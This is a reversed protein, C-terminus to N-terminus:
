FTIDGALFITGNGQNGGIIIEQFGNELRNLDGPTLNLTLESNNDQGAIEIDQAATAPQLVIQGQGQISNEDGTFNIEDSTIEIHGTATEVQDFTGTRLGKTEVELEANLIINGGTKGGRTDILNTSLTRPTNILINGGSGESSTGDISYSNGELIIDGQSSSLTIDGAKATGSTNISNTQIRNLANLNLNGGTGNTSGRTSLTNTIIDRDSELTINGGRTSASTSLNETQIAGNNTTTLDLNGGKTIIDGTILNVGTIVISGGSTQLTNGSNMTFNGSGSQDADATFTLTGTTTPFNLQNDTLNGINISNKAQIVVNATPAFNELTQDSLTINASNQEPNGINIEPANILLTGPTSNTTKLNINGAINLDNQSTITAFGGLRQTTNSNSFGQASIDGFFQTSDNAGIIIQGGNGETLADAIITSQDNILTRSATPFLGNEQADSGIRVTGGGNAGSADIKGNFLHIDNGIINVQPPNPASSNFNTNRTNLFGSVLAWVGQTPFQTNIATLEVTGDPLINVISAQNNESSGTLLKPLDLPNIVSKDNGYNPTITEIELNLLYGTQSIRVLNNGEIAAITIQGAPANLTGTNIVNGGILTLTQGQSVTLEGYNIINGPNSTSFLFSNPEGSLSNYDNSELSNFLGSNFGIGTATTATFSGPIDLRAGPGFIMGSPNLIFLNSNGGTIKILGEIVSPQGGVVRSLINQISNNSVFNAIQGPAVNFQTFSHFLNRRDASHQRGTIDVRNEVSNTLTNTSNPEPVISQAFVRNIPLNLKLTYNLFDSFGNMGVTWFGTLPLSIFVLKVFRRPQM